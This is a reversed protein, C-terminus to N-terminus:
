DLAAPPAGDALRAVKALRRDLSSLQMPVIKEIVHDYDLAVHLVMHRAIWEDLKGLADRSAARERAVRTLGERMAFCERMPWGAHAMLTVGGCALRRQLPLLGLAMVYGAQRLDFEDFSDDFRWLEEGDDGRARFVLSAPEHAFIGRLLEREVDSVSTALRVADLRPRDFRMVEKPTMVVTVRGDLTVPELRFPM